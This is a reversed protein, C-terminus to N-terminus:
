TAARRRRALTGAGLLGGFALSATGPEPVAAAFNDAGFTVLAAPAAAGNPNEIRALISLDATASNLNTSYVLRNVHLASNSYIFFGAGDVNVLDAILSAANGAGFPTAPNNDNDTDLMVLVNSGAAPPSAHSADSFHLSDGVNFKSLDFVFQDTAVNFSALSRQLGAFITRVGDNPNANSGTFPATDFLIPAAQALSSGALSLALLARAILTM